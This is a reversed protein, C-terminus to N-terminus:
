RPKSSTATTWARIRYTGSKQDFSVVAMANFVVKGSDDRGTGEILMVTGDLKYEVEETQRVTIQKDPGLSIVAEGTWTGALFKMKEMATKQVSVDPRGQAHVIGALLTAAFTITLLRM